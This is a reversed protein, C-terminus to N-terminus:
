EDRAKELLPGAAKRVVRGMKATIRPGVEQRRGSGILEVLDRRELDGRTDLFTVHVVRWRPWKGRGRSSLAHLVRGAAAGPAERVEHEWLRVATWGQDILCQTQRKDRRVNDRLKKDWFKRGSRPRTYHDPCGHWFCGDVFVAVMKAPVAVDARGGPTPFDTRYRVGRAWLAKRLMVEPTTDRGRIRAM